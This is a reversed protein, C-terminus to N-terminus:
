KKEKRMKPVWAWVMEATIPSKGSSDTVEVAVQVDGKEETHIKTLQEETLHAVAKIDGECRRVFNVKMSKCLPLASDPVNMGVVIGTASEAALAMGCAHIGGIHNQVRRRNKLHVVARQDSMEEVWIRATGALKVQM